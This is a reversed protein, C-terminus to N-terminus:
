NTVQYCIVPQGRTRNLHHCRTYIRREHHWNGDHMHPCRRYLVSQLSQLSWTLLSSQSSRHTHTLILKGSKADLKTEHKSYDPLCWQFKLSISHTGLHLMHALRPLTSPVFLPRVFYLTGHTRLFYTSATINANPFPKYAELVSSSGWWHLFPNQNTAPNILIWEKNM